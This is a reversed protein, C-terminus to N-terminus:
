KRLNKSKENKAEEIREKKQKSVFTCTVFLILLPFPTGYPPINM